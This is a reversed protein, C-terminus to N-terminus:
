GAAGITALRREILDALEKPPSMGKVKELLTKAEAKKGMILNIRGQHYLAYARRPGDDLPQMRLFADLSEELLKQRAAVDKEGVAKTELAIGLGERCLVNEITTGSDCTRYVGIAEDLKGADILMSAHFAPGTKDTDQKAMEELVKESREKDSAFAPNQPDPPMGPPLVPRQAVGLVATVKETEKVAQNRQCAKYGFFFSILVALIVTATAIKKVHPLVRDLLSEGGLQVPKPPEFKKSADKPDKDEAM